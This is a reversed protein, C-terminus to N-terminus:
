VIFQGAIELVEDMTKPCRPWRPVSGLRQTREPARRPTGRRQPDRTRRRVHQGELGDACRAQVGRRGHEGTGGEKEM